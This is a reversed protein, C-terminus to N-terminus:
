AELMADVRAEVREYLVERPWDIAVQIAHFPPRRARHEAHLASLTRGSSEFVEMGRVIRRLDGPGIVAAYSPDIEELRAFMAAVGLSEAEANLRARLAEDVP